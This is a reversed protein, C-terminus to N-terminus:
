LIIYIGDKKEKVEHVKLNKCRRYIEEGSFINFRYTHLPCVIENHFNIVGDNLPHGLHPCDNQFVHFIGKVNFICVRYEGIQAVRNEGEPILKLGHEKSDFLKVRDGTM